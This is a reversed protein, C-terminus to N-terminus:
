RTVWGPGESTALFVTIAGYAWVQVDRLEFPESLHPANWLSRAGFQIAVNPSAQYVVPADAVFYTEVEGPVYPKTTATTSFSARLGTRWRPPISIEFAGQVTAIPRYQATIVYLLPRYLLDLSADIRLARAHVFGHTIGAAASPRVNGGSPGEIRGSVLAGGSLRTSTVLSSRHDWELETSGAWAKVGNVSDYEASAPIKLTDTPTAAVTVSPEFGMEFHHPYGSSEQKLSGTDGVTGDLDVTTRPSARVSLGTEYRVDYLSLVSLPLQLPPVSNPPQVRPTGTNGPPPTPTGGRGNNAGPNDVSDPTVALAYVTYDVSGAAAQLSNRWILTRSITWASDVSGRHALLPTADHKANPERLYLRPWYRITLYWPQDELRLAALPAISTAVAAKSPEGPMIPAAGVMVEARAGAALDTTVAGLLATGLGLVAIGAM